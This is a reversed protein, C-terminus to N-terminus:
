PPQCCVFKMASSIDLGFLIQRASQHEAHRDDDRDIEEGVDREATSPTAPSAALVAGAASVICASSPGTPPLIM